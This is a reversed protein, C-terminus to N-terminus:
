LNKLLNQTFQNEDFKMRRKSVKYTVLGCLESHTDHSYIRANSHILNGKSSDLM